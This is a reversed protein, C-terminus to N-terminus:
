VYSNGQISPQYTQILEIFAYGGFVVHGFRNIRMGCLDQRQAVIRKLGLNGDTSGKTM